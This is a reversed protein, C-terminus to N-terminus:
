LEKPAQRWIDTTSVAPPLGTKGSHWISMDSPSQLRSDLGMRFWLPCETTASFPLLASGKKQQGMLCAWLQLPFGVQDAALTFWRNADM